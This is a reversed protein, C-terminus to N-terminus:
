HGLWNLANMGKKVLELDNTMAATHLTTGGHQTDQATADAVVALLIHILERGNAPVISGVIMQVPSTAILLGAVNGGLVRGHPRSLSVSFGGIKSTQGDSECVMFSCCLSLIEFQGLHQLSSFQLMLYPEMLKYFACIELAIRKLFMFPDHNCTEMKLILSIRCSGWELHVQFHNKGHLSILRM